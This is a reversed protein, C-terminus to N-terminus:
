HALSSYLINVNEYIKLSLDCKRTANPQATAWQYRVIDRDQTYMQIVIQDM